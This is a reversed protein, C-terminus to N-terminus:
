KSKKSKQPPCPYNQVNDSSPRKRNDSSPRKKNESLPRKRDDIAASSKKDSQKLMRELCTLRKEQIIRQESRITEMQKKAGERKVKGTEIMLSAVSAAASDIKGGSIAAQLKDSGESVLTDAANLDAEIQREKEHLSEEEKTLKNKLQEMKRSEEEIRERERQNEEEKQKRAREQERERELRDQYAAHSRRVASKLSATVPIKEPCCSVPDYFSVAEKVTRLGIITQEGLQAREKTVVRANVSLSRESEANVQALVLGSKVVKELNRYKFHGHSSTLMFVKNWYHDVREGQTVEQVDSDVQYSKWEDQVASVNLSSQLKRALEAISNVTSTRQRKKPNLCGLAKLLGNNLPLRTQLHVIVAIYFSKIGLLVRKQVEAPLSKLNRRAADGIMLHQDDLQNKTDKCDVSVLERGRSDVTKLLRNLVKLLLECMSDYVIHVNPQSRQFLELFNEFLPLIDALFELWCRTVIREKPALMASVRKFNVSKPVNKADRSALDHVFACLPDWQELLRKIAPGLSLWRVQCHQQFTNVDAGFREQLERYDERRAASYKFLSYVDMCLVEVDKAHAQLGAGFANHVIHLVCTGLDIFGQFAPDEEKFLAHLKNVITKNVNPGDRVLAILKTVPINDKTIEQHLRNAVREGEAHGFFLSSYYAVRVECHTPSWYRLTLDMQKKIQSTTTEDFHMCLPVESRLVDDVLVSRLHPGMGESIYYSAKTRNLSFQQAIGSDPFMSKFTEGISDVSRLSYNKVAVNALWVIEAALASDKFNVVSVPTPSNSTSASSETKVLSVFKSQSMDRSM